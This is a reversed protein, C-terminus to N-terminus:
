ARVRLHTCRSSMWMTSSATCPESASAVLANNASAILLAVGSRTIQPIADVSPVMPTMGAM